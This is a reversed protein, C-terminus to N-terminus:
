RLARALKTHYDFNRYGPGNYGAAFDRCTEPDTSLQRLAPALGNHEVYRALMEYHAAEGTVTSYAMEIPSPYQLALWHLGLVQFKGWSAASFAAKADKCAAATLKEWSDEGYGGGQANSFACTSYAGDTLRHFLHREFLIKPRGLKDFASGGSEVQAVARLQLISCKLRSAIRDIDEDTVAAASTNTFAAVIAARTQPGPKGDVAVTQGHACLWQQLETPTM